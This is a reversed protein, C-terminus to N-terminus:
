HQERMHRIAFVTRSLLKHSNKFPCMYNPIVIRNKGIHHFLCSPLITGVFIGYREDDENLMKNQILRNIERELIFQNIKFKLREDIKDSM